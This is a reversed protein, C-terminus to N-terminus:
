RTYGWHYIDGLRNKLMEGMTDSEAYQSKGPWLHAGGYFGVITEGKISEYERLFNELMCKERYAGDMTKYYKRGQEINEKALTYEETEGKGEEILKKLYRSGTRSYLHGVDTGHFITEPYNKKITRYYNWTAPNYLDTGEWEQYLKDLIADSDDAMWENLLAATFYPLEEFLHRHGLAYFAGWIELEERIVGADGHYREGFLYIHGAEISLKKLAEPIEPPAETTPPETTPPETTPAETDPAETAPAETTSAKTTAAETPAPTTSTAAATAPDASGCGTLVLSLVLILIISKKFM